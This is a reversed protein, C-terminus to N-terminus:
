VILYVILGMFGFSTVGFFGYEIREKYVEAGSKTSLVAMALCTIGLVMTLILAGFLLSDALALLIDIM